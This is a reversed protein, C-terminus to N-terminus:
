DKSSGLKADVVQKKGAVAEKHGSDVPIRIIGSSEMLALLPRRLRIM